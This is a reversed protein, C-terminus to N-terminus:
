QHGQPQLFVVANTFPASRGSYSHWVKGIEYGPAEAILWGEYFGWASGLCVWEYIAPFDFRGDASTWVAEEALHRNPPQGPNELNEV